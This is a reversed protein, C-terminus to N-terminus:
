HEVVDGVHGVSRTDMLDDLRGILLRLEESKCSYYIKQRERRTQVLNKSRLKALHQSLASQTLSVKKALATVSMEEELLHNVIALRNRNALISLLSAEEKVRDGAKTM